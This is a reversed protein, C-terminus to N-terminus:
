SHVPQLWGRYHIIQGVFPLAIPVEFHFLGGEEWERARSRPALRLPLPIGLMSWRRMIMELGNADSPLDFLFRLPGFREQLMKGSARLESSFAHDGFHRTWREVGGKENFAVHLKHRGPPPFRMLRRIAQAAINAPGQVVAEGQAALDRLPRHITQLSNPLRRFTEGMVVEYASPGRDCETVETTIALGKFAERYDALELAGGAHRAGPPESGSLIREVILPVSLCPIEPGDGKSAILTWSREVPKDDDYGFLRVIMASRDTGLRSTLGQLRKLTPALRQLGDIARVRVVWSALWLARTQFSLETGAKFTCAPMGPLANPWLELDPVDVLAVRRRNIPPVESVCFDLAEQEQWGYAQEWRKGRWLTLPQGVQGLIAKAVSPGASAQNSASIALDVGTVRELGRALERVVAGSLAPVSSAGSLVVVGARQADADLAHIDCVFRRSDAIDCYHVGSDMCTQPVKYDLHQFPGSADVVLAPKHHALAEAVKARDLQLPVTGAVTDCYLQAKDLSRGSVLVEHGAGALRRSIRRGFGGYGGLVLIRSLPGSECTEPRAALLDAKNRVLPLSQPRGNPLSSGSPYPAGFAGSCTRAM